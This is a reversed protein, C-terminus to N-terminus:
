VGERTKITLTSNILVLLILLIAAGANHAVALALPLGLKVNAIGLSVQALLAVVLALSYERLLPSGWLRSALWLLYGFTVLAGLRHTWHIATLASLTLPSGDASVGLERALHFAHAYDMDPWYAGQCQPFDVCALAAYNSSTWGGLLLQAALVVLGLRAWPILAQAPDAAGISRGCRRHVWWTLLGLTTMGGMLHASVIVPKLLKTVTWMGLLAQLTVVGLLLAPLTISIGAQGRRRWALVFLALILLGLSGALYRHLMEKWAKHPELPKDPFAQQATAVQPVTLEGYCGPWDPCGLGADSLRVYAGLLVVCFALVAAVLGLRDFARM